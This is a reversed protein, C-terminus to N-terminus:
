IVILYPLGEMPGDLDLDHPLGRAQRTTDRHELTLILRGFCDTNPSGFGEYGTLASQIATCIAMKTSGTITSTPQAIPFGKRSSRSGKAARTSVSLTM